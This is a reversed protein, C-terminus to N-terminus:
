PASEWLGHKDYFCAVDGLEVEATPPTGTASELWWEAGPLGASVWARGGVPPLTGPQRLRAVVEGHLPEWVRAQEGEVDIVVADFWRWLVLTGDQRPQLAVLHGPSLSSARPVFARGYGARLVRGAHLVECDDPGPLLVVGSTLSESLPHVASRDSTM